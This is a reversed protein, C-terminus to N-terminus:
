VGQENGGGLLDSNVDLMDLVDIDNISISELYAHTTASSAHGLLGQIIKVRDLNKEKSSEALAREM